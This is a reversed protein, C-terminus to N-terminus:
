KKNEKIRFYRETLKMTRDELIPNYLQLQEGKKVSRAYVKRNYRTYIKMVEIFNLKNSACIDLIKDLRTM